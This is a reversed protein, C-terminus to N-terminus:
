NFTTSVNCPKNMVRSIWAQSGLGHLCEPIHETLSSFVARHVQELGFYLPGNQSVSCITTVSRGIRIRPWIDFGTVIVARGLLSKVILIMVSGEM